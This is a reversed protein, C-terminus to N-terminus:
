DNVLVGGSTVVHDGAQLGSLVRVNGGDEAGLEVAHRVFTWPTTEVFVSTTDNNMLIASVPIIIQDPQTLAINVTAFMNPQLKGNPNPFVIRTRNRRTDPELFASVFSVKGHLIQEPYAPLFVEVALNKSVAGTLNEPIQATVWVSNLNSVTLLPTTLDNVYSGQGYNLATIRGALPAKINLLSFGKDSLAKLTVTTRKFEAMAQIYSSEALEIDKISNAGARNVSRARKLAENTLKLVSKAKNNDAYALALDPSRIVALVQNQEVTDGLQVNLTILRGTLPPLINVTRSPDAEVIGPFSVIHPTTSMKITKVAMQSRLPSHEPIIIQKGQRIIMPEIPLKNRNAAYTLCCKFLIIIAFLGILGSVLIVLSKQHHNLNDYKARILLILAHNKM